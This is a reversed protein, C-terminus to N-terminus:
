VIDHSYKWKIVNLQKDHGNKMMSPYLNNILACVLEWGLVNIQIELINKRKLIPPYGGERLRIHKINNKIIMFSKHKLLNVGFNTMFFARGIVIDIIIEMNPSILM